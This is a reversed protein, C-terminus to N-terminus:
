KVGFIKTQSIQKAGHPSMSVTTNQFLILKEITHAQQCTFDIYLTIMQIISFLCHYFKKINQMIILCICSTIINLTRGTFCTEVLAIQAGGEYVAVYNFVGKAVTYCHFISNDILYIVYSSKLLGHKSFVFSGFVLDNKYIKFAKRLNPYGFLYRM